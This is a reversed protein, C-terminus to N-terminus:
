FRVRVGASTPGILPRVSITDEDMSDIPDSSGENRSKRAAAIVGTTIGTLLSAIGFGTLLAGPLLTDYRYRCRGNFDIDDGSCRSKVPQEELALLPVGAGLLAVGVMSFTWGTIRLARTQKDNNEVLTYALLESGGRPARVTEVVDNHNRLTIELDRLGPPVEIELPTKGVREGDIKVAAGSPQTRIALRSIDDTEFEAQERDAYPNEVYGLLPEKVEEAESVLAGVADPYSCIECTASEDVKLTGAADYLRVAIGYDRDITSLAPQVVWQADADEAVAHICEFNTCNAGPPRGDVVEYDRSKLAAKIRDRAESRVESPVEGEVLLPMVAVRVKPKPKAAAGATGPM